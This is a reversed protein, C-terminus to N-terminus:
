KIENLKKELKKIENDYSNMRDDPRVVTRVISNWDYLTGKSIRLGEIEMRIDLEKKNYTSHKLSDIENQLKVIEKKTRTLEKKINCGNCADLVTLICIIYLVYILGNNLGNNLNDLIKKM